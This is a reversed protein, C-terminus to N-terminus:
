FTILLVWPDTNPSSFTNSTVKGIQKPIGTKPDIWRYNLKQPVNEITIKGGNELYSLYVEGEKMLLPKGNAMDWRKQIDTFDVGKLIKGVTGAYTAGDLHLAEEWSVMQDSWPDWGTEAGTIKWQWLSAAGYVIGMTGGHMLQMWADQGQWWGCGNQGGNMGEYTPEGNAVAKTPVNDYMAAVKHYQHTKGHGTQAWQFDVWEKDQHSKNFHMCRKNPDNKSWEAVFDDCPSYHLGVPQQYCDWQQLMEGSLEVGPDNGDHDASILWLAPNSGYRALLYKVYRVYEEPQVSTGLVALGKWGFGQFVPQFVPVLENAILIDVLGDFYQFYSVNIQNLHGQSIDKFARKFGQDTNRKNPGKAQTDPQLTMLLVMNFGKERRNKAYIRAQEKTARFPLAWPTDATMLFSKGSEHILNRKGPSIQLPGEKLLKNEGLYTTAFFAGSVGHLGKDQDNSCSSRWQWRGTSDPPSFRLKWSNDGDWFAPRVLTDGKANYFQAWVDVDTYPNNYNNEAKLNLEVTNWQPIKPATNQSFLAFPVCWMVAYKFFVMVFRISRQHKFTTRKIEDKKVGRARRFTKFIVEYRFM